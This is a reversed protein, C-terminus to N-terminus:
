SASGTDKKLTSRARTMEEELREPTALGSHIQYECEDGLERLAEELERIRQELSTTALLALEAAKHRADQFGQVYAKQAVQHPTGAHLSNFALNMIQQHLVDSLRPEKTDSM